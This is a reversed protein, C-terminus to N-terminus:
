KENPFVLVFEAGKGLASTVDIHAGMADALRAAISLGLGYGKEGRAPDVKYFRDFVKDLEGEDIGIGDDRVGIRTEGKNQTVFVTIQGHQETFKVANDLFIVLCQRLMDADATLRETRSVSLTIDRDAVLSFDKTIEQLLEHLDIHTAKVEPLVNDMRSLTLLRELMENMRRCQVNIATIAEKMVEPEETGWRSLIDAYGSIISLPTRLEHSADSVFRSRAAYSAELRDMMQNYHCAVDRLETHIKNADLRASLDSVTIEKMLRSMSHVPRLCKQSVSIGVVGSAIAAVVTSVSMVVVLLAFVNDETQMSKAVYLTGYSNNRCLLRYNTGGVTIKHIGESLDLADDAVSADGTLYIVEGNQVLGVFSIEGASASRAASESFNAAELTAYVTTLQSDCQRNTSYGAMWLVFVEQLIMIVFFVLVFAAALSFSLSAPTKADAAWKQQKKLILKAESKHQLYVTKEEAKRTKYAQKARRIDASTQAKRSAAPKPHDASVEQNLAFKLRSKELKYAYKAAAKEKKYVNKALRCSVKYANKENKPM